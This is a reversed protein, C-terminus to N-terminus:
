RACIINDRQNWSPMAPIKPRAGNTRSKPVLNLDTNLKVGLGSQAESFPETCTSCSVQHVASRTQVSQLPSSNSAGARIRVTVYSWAAFLRLAPESCFFSCWTKIQWIKGRYYMTVVTLGAVILTSRFKKFMNLNFSLSVYKFCRKVIKLLKYKFEWHWIDSVVTCQYSKLNNHSLFHVRLLFVISAYTSTFITDVAWFYKTISLLYTWLFLQKFWSTHLKRYEDRVCHKESVSLSIPVTYVFFYFKENSSPVNPFNKLKETGRMTKLRFTSREGTYEGITHWIWQRLFIWGLATALVNRDEQRQAKTTIIFVHLSKSWM